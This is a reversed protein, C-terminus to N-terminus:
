ARVDYKDVLRNSDPSDDAFKIENSSDSTEDAFKLDNYDSRKLTDANTERATDNVRKLTSSNDQETRNERRHVKVPSRTLTLDKMPITVPTEDKKKKNRKNVKPSHQLDSISFNLPHVLNRDVRRARISENSHNAGHGPNRKLTSSSPREEPSETNSGPDPRLEKPLIEQSFIIKPQHIM